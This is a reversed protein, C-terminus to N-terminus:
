SGSFCCCFSRRSAKFLAEGPDRFGNTHKEAIAASDGTLVNPEGAHVATGSPIAEMRMAGRTNLMADSARMSTIPSLLKNGTTAKDPRLFSMFGTNNSTNVQVSEMRAEASASVPLRFERMGVRNYLAELLEEPFNENENMNRMQKLFDALKM